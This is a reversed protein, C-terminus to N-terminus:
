VINKVELKFKGKFMKVAWRTQVKTKDKIGELAIDDAQNDNVEVFRSSKKKNNNSVPPEVPATEIQANEQEIIMVSDYITNILHDPIVEADFQEKEQQSLEELGGIEFFVTDDDAQNAGGADM